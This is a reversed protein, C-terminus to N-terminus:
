SCGVPCGTHPNPAANQTDIKHKIKTFHGIDLDDKAFADRFEILTLSLTLSDDMTLHKISSDLLTKLHAPFTSCIEEWQQQFNRNSAQEIKRVSPTEDTEPEELIEEIEVAIGVIFNKKLAIAKDTVNNFILPLSDPKAVINPMMLGRLNRVPQIAIDEHFTEPLICPLRVTSNPPFVLTEDLKVRCVMFTTTQSKVQRVEIKEGKITISFDTLDIVADFKTLLNLGLIVPDTIKAVIIRWKTETKGVTVTTGDTYRAPINNNTGAGKLLVSDTFIVPPDLKRAFDDGLLTVQAATDVVADVATGNILIPIILNNVFPNGEYMSVERLQLPEESHIFTSTGEETM